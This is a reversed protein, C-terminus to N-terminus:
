AGPQQELQQATALVEAVEEVEEQADPLPEVSENVTYTVEEDGRLSTVTVDEARYRDDEEAADRVARAFPHMDVAGRVTFWVTAATPTAARDNDKWMTQNVQWAYSGAVSCDDQIDVAAVMDRRIRTVVRAPTRNLRTRGDDPHFRVAVEYVPTRTVVARLYSGLKRLYYAKVAFQQPSRIRYLVSAGVVIVISFLMWVIAAGWLISQIM